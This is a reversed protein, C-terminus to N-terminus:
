GRRRRQGFGRATARGRAAPWRVGEKRGGKVVKEGNTYSSVMLLRGIALAEVAEATTVWEVTLSAGLVGRAAKKEPYLQAQAGEEKGGQHLVGGAMPSGVEDSFAAVTGTKRGRGMPLFSPHAAAKVWMDPPHGRWRLHELAAGQGVEVVTTGGAAMGHRAGPAHHSSRNASARRVGHWRAPRPGAGGTPRPCWQASAMPQAACRQVNAM